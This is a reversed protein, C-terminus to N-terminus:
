EPNSWDLSSPCLLRGCTEHRFGLWPKQDKKYPPTFEIWNQIGNQMSNVDTSRAASRGYELQLKSYNTLEFHVHDAVYM